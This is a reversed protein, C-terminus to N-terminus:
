TFHELFNVQPQFPLDEDEFSGFGDDGPQQFQYSQGQDQQKPLLKDKLNAVKADLRTAPKNEFIESATQKTQPDFFGAFTMKEGVKGNQKQYEEKQLLIGIPTNMLTPYIPVKKDIEKKTEFDYIKVVGDQAPADKVKMCTMCAMLQKFGYAKEGDAKQTYLTLFKAEAGTVDKFTFEVGETGTDAKIAYAQTFVGTYAGTKTIRADSDGQLADQKNLQYNLAM